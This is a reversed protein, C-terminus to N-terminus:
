ACGARAGWRDSWAQTAFLPPLAPAPKWPGPPAAEWRGVRVTGNAGSGCADGLPLPCESKWSLMSVGREISPDQDGRTRHLPFYPATSPSSLHLRPLNPGGGGTDRCLERLLVQRSGQGEASASFGCTQAAALACGM